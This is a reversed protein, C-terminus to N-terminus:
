GRHFRPFGESIEDLIEAVTVLRLEVPENPGATAPLRWLGREGADLWGTVTGQLKGEGETELVSVHVAAPTTALAEALAVAVAEDGGLVAAAGAVDGGQAREGADLLQSGAVTIRLPRPVERDVLGCLQATRDLVRAGPFITIRHEGDPLPEHEAAVEGAIAITARRSEAGEQRQVTIILQASTLLDLAALLEPPVRDSM